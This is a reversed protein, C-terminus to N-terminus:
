LLHLYLHLMKTAEENM